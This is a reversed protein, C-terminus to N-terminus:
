RGQAAAIREKVEEPPGLMWFRQDAIEVYRGRAVSGGARVRASGLPQNCLVAADAGRGRILYLNQDTVVLARSGRLLRFLPWFFGYFLLMPGLILPAPAMESLRYQITEDPELVPYAHALMAPGLRSFEESQSLMAPESRSASAGLAPVEGTEEGFLQYVRERLASTSDDARFVLIARKGSELTLFLRLAAGFRKVKVGRLSARPWRRLEPGTEGQEGLEFIYIDSPTVAILGFRPLGREGGYIRRRLWGINTLGGISVLSAVLVPGEVHQALAEAQSREVYVMDEQWSMAAGSRRTSGLGPDLPVCGPKVREGSSAGDRGRFRSIPLPYRDASSDGGITPGVAVRRTRCRDLRPAALAHSMAARKHHLCYRKGPAPRVSGITPSSCCDRSAIVNGDGAARALWSAALM